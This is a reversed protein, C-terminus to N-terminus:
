KVELDYFKKKLIDNLDYNKLIKYIKKSTNGDGYPSKINQLGDQFKSSYLKIFALRISDITADCDIISDTRTRGKQRDGINITGIKFSPAEIIGSSSNGVVADM